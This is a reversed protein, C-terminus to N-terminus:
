IPLLCAPIYSLAGGKKIGEPAVDVVCRSNEDVAIQIGSFYINWLGTQSSVAIKSNSSWAVFRQSAYSKAQGQSPFLAAKGFTKLVLTGPGSITLFSIRGFVLSTMRLSIETKLNMGDSFAVLNEPNLYIQENEQVQWEIFEAGQSTQISPMLDKARHVWNMWLIGNFLRRGMAQWPKPCALSAPVGSVDFKKNVYFGTTADAPFNYNSGFGVISGSQPTQRTETNSSKVMTIYTQMKHSFAFRSFVYSFSKILTISLLLKAILDLISITLFVRSISKKISYSLLDLDQHFRNRIFRINNEVNGEGQAALQTLEAIMKERQKARTEKWATNMVQKFTEIAMCEFDPYFWDCGGEKPKLAEDYEWLEKKFIPDKGDYAADILNQAAQEGSGNAARLAQNIRTNITNKTVIFRSDISAHIDSELTLHQEFDIVYGTRPQCEGDFNVESGICYISKTVLSDIITAYFLAIGTVCAILWWRSLTKLCNRATQRMGMNAVIDTNQIIVLIFIRMIVAILSLLLVPYFAVFVGIISSLNNTWLLIVSMVAPLLLFTLSRISNAGFFLLFSFLSAAAYIPWLSTHFHSADEFKPFFKDGVAVDHVPASPREIDKSPRNKDVDTQTDKSHKINQQFANPKIQKTSFQRQKQLEKKLVTSQKKTVQETMKDPTSLIPQYRIPGIYNEQPVSNTFCIFIAVVLSVLSIVRIWYHCVLASVVGAVLVISYFVTYTPLLLNASREIGVKCLLSLQGEDNSCNFSALPIAALAFPLIGILVAVWFLTKSVDTLSTRM